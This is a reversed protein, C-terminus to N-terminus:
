RILVIMRSTEGSSTRMRCIYHGSAAHDGRSTRGDWSVEAEGASYQASTLTEIHRGLIDFIAIEVHSAEELLFPIRTEPDSYAVFPSPKSQGLSFNFGEPPDVTQTDVIFVVPIAIPSNEALESSIIVTDRYEGPSLFFPDANIAPFSPTRGAAPTVELWSSSWTASWDFDIVSTSQISITRRVPFVDGTEGVVTVSAPSVTMSVAAPNGITIRGPYIAPTILQGDYTSWNVWRIPLGSGTVHYVSDIFAYQNQASPAVSFHLTAISGDGIPIWGLVGPTLSRIFTLASFRESVNTQQYVVIVEGEWREPIVIASDFTISPSTWRFPVTAGGLITDNEILMEVSFKGGPSVTTNSFRVANEARLQASIAVVFILTLFLYRKMVVIHAGQQGLGGKYATLRRNSAGAVTSM